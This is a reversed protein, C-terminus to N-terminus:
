KKIKYFKCRSKTESPFNGWDCVIINTTKSEIVQGWKCSKCLSKKAM